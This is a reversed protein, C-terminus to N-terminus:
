AANGELEDGTKEDPNLYFWVENYLNRINQQSFSYEGIAYDRLGRAMYRMYFTPYVSERFEEYEPHSDCIRDAARVWLYCNVLHDLTEAKINLGFYLYLYAAYKEADRFEEAMKKTVDLVRSNRGKGFLWNMEYTIGKFYREEELLQYFEQKRKERDHRRVIKHFVAFVGAGTIIGATVFLAAKMSMM